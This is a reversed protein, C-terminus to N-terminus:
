TPAVPNPHQSEMTELQEVQEAQDTALMDSINELFTAIGYKCYSAVDLFGAYTILNMPELRIDESIVLGQDRVGAFMAKSRLYLTRVGEPASALKVRSRHVDSIRQQLQSEGTGADRYSINVIDNM